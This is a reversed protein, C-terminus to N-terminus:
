RPLKGLETLVDNYRNILIRARRQRAKQEGDASLSELKSIRKKLWRSHVLIFYGDPTEIRVGARSRAGLIAKWKEESLLDEFDEPRASVAAMERMNLLETTQLGDEMLEFLILAPGQMTEELKKTDANKIWRSTTDQTVRFVQALEVSTQLGNADMFAKLRNNNGNKPREALSRQTKRVM